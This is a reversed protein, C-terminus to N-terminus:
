FLYAISFTINRFYFKDNKEFYSSLPYFLSHGVDFSLRLRKSIDGDIGAVGGIDQRPSSGFVYPHKQLLADQLGFDPRNGGSGPAYDPLPNQPIAQGAGGLAYGVYMGIRPTVRVGDTMEFAYGVSLPLELYYLRFDYSELGRYVTNERRNQISLGKNVYNLEGRLVIGTHFQYEVLVGATLSVAGKHKIETSTDSHGVGLHVGKRWQGFATGCAMAVLVVTMIIQRM